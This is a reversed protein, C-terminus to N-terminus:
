LLKSHTPWHICSHSESISKKGSSPVIHSAQNRLNRGMHLVPPHPCSLQRCETQVEIQAPPVETAEPHSLLCLFCWPAAAASSILTTIKRTSTGLGCYSSPALLFLCCSETVSPKSLIWVPSSCFFRIICSANFLTCLTEQWVGKIM